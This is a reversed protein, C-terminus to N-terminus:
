RMGSDSLSRYEVLMKYDEQPTDQITFQYREEVDFIEPNDTLLFVYDKSGKETTVGIYKSICPKCMAGEPCPPCPKIFAVYAELTYSDKATIPKEEDKPLVVAGVIFLLIIIGIITLHKKM